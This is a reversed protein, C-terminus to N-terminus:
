SNKKNRGKESLLYKYLFYYIIMEQKRADDTFLRNLHMHIISEILLYFGTDGSRTAAYLKEASKKFVRAQPLIGCHKYFDRDNLATRIGASLERFKKDLAVKLQEDRFEAAFRLYNSLTFKIQEDQSTIFLNLLDRISVLALALATMAPQNLQRKLFKLVLESSAWFHDGTLAAPAARYRELERSYVDVQYERIVHENIGNELRYRFAALIPAIDEPEARLRLRIHPAHDDYRVFFWKRIRGSTYKKQLLPALRLLLRGAGARPTYLKLYLWESGPLFKRQSPVASGPERLRDQFELARSPYLFANFQSIFAEGGNDELTAAQGEDGFYERIVVENKQHICSGFFALEAPRDTHFILQQDGETLAFVAPLKLENAIERYVATLDKGATQQLTILRHGHLIWTAAHLIANKYEVRPYFSLGPFYQRLDISLASQGYQYPLDALFRFLPLKNLSHNYASSLRPVVVKGHKESRLIVLGNEISVYLDALDLQREAETLSPATLPLEWSWIHDRRNINDTHPDSLHLIEAFIIGPNLREQELAIERAAAKIGPDALTFRGILAVPNNGGASEIYVKDRATRFLVSMGTSPLGTSQQGIKQIENDDLIIVRKDANGPQHWRELIYSHAASWNVARGGAEKQGIHLTELLKNGPESLAQQYGIGTEPDLAKQLPIKQGEFYTNFGKIFDQLAPPIQQPCLMSLASLGEALYFQYREDLAAGPLHRCLVANLLSGGTERTEPPLLARIRSSVKLFYEPDPRPRKMQMILYSLRNGTTTEGEAERLKSLLLKLHGEGAIGPRAQNLLLQSDALFGFYDTAEEESCNALASIRGIIEDTNKGPRCFALLDKLLKSYDVSQLRYERANGTENLESRIFRYEGVARYLGRNPVFIAYRPPMKALVEKSFAAVFTEDASVHPRLTGEHPLIRGNGEQWGILSVSSFLGFPTPRFCIRNMYKLLTNKEKETLQTVSFGTTRLREFFLPSALYIAARFVRDDLFSQSGNLYDSAPRAPMRLVLHRSFILKDM